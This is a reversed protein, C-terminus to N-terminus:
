HENRVYWNKPQGISNVSQFSIKSSPSFADDSTRMIQLEGKVSLEAEPTDTGIGIKKDEAWPTSVQQATVNLCVCSFILTVIIIRMSM